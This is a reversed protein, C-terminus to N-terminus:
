LLVLHELTELFLLDLLHELLGLFYLYYLLVLPQLLM